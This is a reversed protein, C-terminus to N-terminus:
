ARKRHGTQRTGQGSAALGGGVCAQQIAPNEGDDGSHLPLSARRM